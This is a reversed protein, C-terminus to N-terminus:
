IVKCLIVYSLRPLLPSIGQPYIRPCQRQEVFLLVMCMNEHFMEVQVIDDFLFPISSGAEALATLGLGSVTSVRLGPDVM